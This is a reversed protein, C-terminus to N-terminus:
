EQQKIQNRLDERTLNYLKRWTRGDNPSLWLLGGNTGFKALYNRSTDKLVIVGNTRAIEEFYFTDGSDTKQEKWYGGNEGAHNGWFGGVYNYKEVFGKSSNAFTRFTGGESYHDARLEFDQRKLKDQVFTSAERQVAAANSFQGAEALAAALTDLYSSNTRTTAKVAMTAFNLATSGDRFGDEPITALIWALENMSYVDGQEAAKRRWKLAESVNRDVGIGNYLIWSLRAQASVRGLNAAKSYWETAQAMDKDVGVANEYCWALSYQADTRGAEALTRYFGFAELATSDAENNKGNLRLIRSFQSLADPLEMDHQMRLRLIATACRFNTEAESCMGKNKLMDGLSILTGAHFWGNTDGGKIQLAIAERLCAEAEDFRGLNRLVSGLQGIPGYTLAHNEGHLKKRIALSERIAAESAVLDGKSQLLVSLKHLGLAVQESEPGFCKTFIGLSERFAKEADDLRASNRGLGLRVAQNRLNDGLNMLGFAEQQSGPGRLKRQMEIAHHAVIAGEDLKRVYHLALSLQGLTDAITLSEAGRNYGATVLAARATEEAKDFFQLDNYAEVLMLMLEAQMDPQGRLDTGIRDTTRDLIERLLATDRGGAVSPGTSKLMDKLFRSVQQSKAAENKARQEGAEARIAQWLSIAIGLILALAIGATAVFALTNRRIMKQFRYLRSPPRATILENNLYREIEMALGNATEYRRTRDKELTKMVVWDLDGRFISLLSATSIQRQSAIIGQDGLQLGGIRTSPSPPEEERIIRCVEHLALGRLREQEFPLCGTLLEYLLVGLAYIDARTDVDESIAGTQEPSMYAPTGVFQDFATYISEDALRQSTTARAVGFDIVKPIPDGDQQAVLINSPKLDRHIIGKQHAHQVAACVAVFLKLRQAISLQHRNCYNTIREGSVLEMVFYPRGLSSAGADLIRAIHPHDMLALSQRETEFRKIVSQTDMGLKIVKLAVLRRVPFTQEARYVVGCGGEGIQDLLRYNGFTDATLPSVAPEDGDLDSTGTDLKLGFQLLCRLCLKGPVDARLPAHCKSCLNELISSM